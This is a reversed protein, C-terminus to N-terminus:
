PNVIGSHIILHLCDVHENFQSPLFWNPVIISQYITTFTVLSYFYNTYFGYALTEEYHDLGCPWISCRDLIKHLPCASHAVQVWWSSGCHWRCQQSLGESIEMKIAPLSQEMHEVLHSGTSTVRATLMLLLSGICRSTLQVFILFLPWASTSWSIVITKKGTDSRIKTKLRAKSRTLGTFSCSFSSMVPHILFVGNARVNSQHEHWEWRRQFQFGSDGVLCTQNVKRLWTWVGQVSVAM